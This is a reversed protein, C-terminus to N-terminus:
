NSTGAKHKVYLLPLCPSSRGSGGAGKRTIDGCHGVFLLDLTYALRQKRVKFLPQRYLFLELDGLMKDCLKICGPQGQHGEVPVSSRRKWGACRASAPM